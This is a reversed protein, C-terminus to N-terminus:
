DDKQARALCNPCKGEPGLDTGYPIIDLCDACRRDDEKARRHLLEDRRIMEDKHRGM